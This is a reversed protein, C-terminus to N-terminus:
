ARGLLLVSSVGQSSPHLWAEGRQASLSPPALPHRRSVLCALPFAFGQVFGFILQVFTLGHREVAELFVEPACISTLADPIGCLCVRPVLALQHGTPQHLTRALLTRLLSRAWGAFIEWICQGSFM